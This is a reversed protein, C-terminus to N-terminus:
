KAGNMQEVAFVIPEEGNNIAALKRVLNRALEGLELDYMAEPTAVSIGWVSRVMENYGELYAQKSEKTNLLSAATQWARVASTKNDLMWYADGLHDYTEPSPQLSNQLAEVFLPVAKEPEGSLAYMWGVTDMIYAKDPDLIYAYKCLAIVDETAGDQVLKVWALNNATLPNDPNIEFSATNLNLAGDVAGVLSMTQAATSLAEARTVPEDWKPAIPLLKGDESLSVYVQHTLSGDGSSAGELLPLVTLLSGLVKPGVHPAGAAAVQTAIEVSGVDVLQQLVGLWVGRNQSSILVSVATDFSNQFDHRLESHAETHHGLKFLTLLASERLLAEIPDGNNQFWSRALWRLASDLKGMRADALGVVLLADQHLSNRRLVERWAQVSSDVRGIDSLALALKVWPAPAYPDLKTAREFHSIAHGHKRQSVFHMGIIYERAALPITPTTEHEEMEGAFSLLWKEINSEQASSLSTVFFLICAIFCYRNM